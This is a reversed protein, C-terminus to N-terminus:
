ALAAAAAMVDTFRGTVANEASSAEFTEQTVGSPEREIRPKLGSLSDTGTEARVIIASAPFPPHEGERGQLAMPLDGPEGLERSLRGRALCSVLAPGSPRGGSQRERARL